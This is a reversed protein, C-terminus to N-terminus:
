YRRDTDNGNFIYGTEYRTNDGEVTWKYFMINERVAPSGDPNVPM